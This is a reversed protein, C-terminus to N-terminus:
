IPAVTRGKAGIHHQTSGALNLQIQFYEHRHAEGIRTVSREDHIGFDPGIARESLSYTKRARTM